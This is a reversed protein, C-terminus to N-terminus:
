ALRLFYLFPSPLTAGPTFLRAMCAQCCSNLEQFRHHFSLVSKLLQGRVEVYGGYRAPPTPLHPSCKSGGVVVEVVFLFLFFTYYNFNSLTSFFLLFFILLTGSFCLSFPFCELGSFSLTMPHVSCFPLQWVPM